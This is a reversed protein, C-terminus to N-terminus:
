CNWCITVQEYSPAYTTRTKQIFSGKSRTTPLLTKTSTVTSTIVDCDFYDRLSAVNKDYSKSGMDVSKPHFMFVTFGGPNALNDQQSLFGTALLQHCCGDSFTGEWSRTAARLLAVAKLPASTMTLNQMFETMVPEVDMDSTCLTTFLKRKDPGLSKLLSKTSGKLAKEAERNEQIRNLEQVISQSSLAWAAAAEDPMGAVGARGGDRGEDDGGIRLKSKISAIIQNLTPNGRVDKLTVPTVGDNESAWLMALVLEMAEAEEDKHDILADDDGTQDVKIAAIIAMALEKAQVNSEGKVMLFLTPPVIVHNPQKRLITSGQFELAAFEDATSVARMSALSPCNIYPTHRTGDSPAKIENTAEIPPLVKFYACDSLNGQIFIM